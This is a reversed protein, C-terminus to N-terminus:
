VKKYDTKGRDTLRWKPISHAQHFVCVITSGWKIKNQIIKSHKVNRRFNYMKYTM